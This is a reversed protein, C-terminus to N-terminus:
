YVFRSNAIVEKVEVSGSKGGSGKWTVLVDALFGNNGSDSYQGLLQGSGTTAINKFMIIRTYSIGDIVIAPTAVNDIRLRAINPDNTPMLNPQVYFTTRAKNDYYYGSVVSTSAHGITNWQTASNQDIYNSDRNQRIIEIAEAALSVAQAREQMYQANTLSSRAIFVLSGLVVIIIACSIMVELIGFGKSFKKINNPM